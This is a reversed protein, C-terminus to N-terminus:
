EPSIVETVKPVILRILFANRPVIGEKYYNEVTEIVEFGYSKYFAVAADNSIQVHAYIADLGRKQASEKVLDLCKAGFGYRRFLTLVGLAMIYLRQPGDVPTEVRSCIAGVVMDAHNLLQTIDRNDPSVIENYFKDEYRVPLCAELLKRLQLINDKTVNAFRTRLEPRKLEKQDAVM